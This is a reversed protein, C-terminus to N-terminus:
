FLSFFYFKRFRSKVPSIMKLRSGRVYNMEAKLSNTLDSSTNTVQSLTLLDETTPQSSCAKAKRSKGGIKQSQHETVKHKLSHTHSHTQIPTRTLSHTHSHGALTHAHTQTYTLTNVLHSYIFSNRPTQSHTDKNM